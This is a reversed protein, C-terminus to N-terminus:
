LAIDNPDDRSVVPSLPTVPIQADGSAGVLSITAAMGLFLLRM